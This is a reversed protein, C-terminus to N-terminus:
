LVDPISRKLRYFILFGAVSGLIGILWLKVLAAPEPAQAELLVARWARVIHLMPNFRLVGWAWGPLQTEPYCIPTLFFWLTLVFGIVQVVDRVFAGISALLWSLGLTMLIQPVIVAPLWFATVPLRGLVGLAILYICGSIATTSVAALTITLPLTEVPYVIRKVFLRYEVLLNPSRALAESFGLWPIMGALFYLTFGAPSQDAAFRTRLVFGFVFVYALMLLLPNLWTWFLEAFSGRYRAAIDRRVMSAILKRHTWACTAYGALAAGLHQAAARRRLAAMTTLERSLLHAGAEDVRVNLSWFKAGRAYAWGETEHVPCVHLRYTGPASPLVLSIEYERSEPLAQWQSEHLFRGSEPDCVQVGLSWGPGAASPSPLTLRVPLTLGTM